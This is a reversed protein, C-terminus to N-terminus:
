GSRSLRAMLTLQQLLAQLTAPAGVDGTEVTHSRGGDEITLRYDYQDAAGSPSQIKDQLSYFQSQEVLKVLAQGAAPDLRSTDVVLHMPIATFGGSREFRINM